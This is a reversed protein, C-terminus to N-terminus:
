EDILIILIPITLGIQLAEFVILFILRKKSIYELAKIVSFIILVGIDILCLVILFPFAYAYNDDSLLAIGGLVAAVIHLVLYCISFGLGLGRSPM